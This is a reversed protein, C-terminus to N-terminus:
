YCQKMQRRESETNSSAPISGLVTGVKDNATLRQLREALDKGCPYSKKTKGTVRYGFGTIFFTNM